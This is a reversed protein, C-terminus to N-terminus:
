NSLSEGDKFFTGDDKIGIPFNTRKYFDNDDYRKDPVDKTIEAMLLKIKKVLNTDITNSTEKFFDLYKYSIHLLIIFNIGNLVFKDLVKFYSNASIVFLGWNTDEELEQMDTAKNSIIVFRTNFKKNIGALHYTMDIFSPDTVIIDKKYRNIIKKDLCLDRIYIAINNYTDNLIEENKKM